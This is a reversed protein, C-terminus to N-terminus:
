KLLERIAAELQNDLGRGLKASASPDYKVLIDPDIGKKDIWFGAPTLWKAVSIHVSAGNDVDVAQQITGKGFSTDGLLKARNHDRLAGAVIESASASGRNVLVILPHEYLTGVRSVSLTEQQKASNEQIVVAGNRLFESSIFVADNLYGGPNNRLDLIIGKFNNVGNIKQNLSNVVSIWEDNTKDGFQSLRIYAIPLGRSDELCRDKCSFSKVWGDVSKVFILGRVVKIEVASNKGEHLVNLVVTSGKPGRIKEVARAVTWGATEQGDVELIIDGAAIGSKDAPADDLPAVVMIRNDTSLSLEAGIGTFEGALQTKFDSNQKPPFFSTYPDKLSGLMGNIAGYLLERTDLKTKDYYDQNVKDLVEYFLRMDLTAGIPASKSSIAIVPRYSKWSLIISRTGYFYGIFLAVLVIIAIQFVRLSILKRM